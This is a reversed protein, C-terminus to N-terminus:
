KIHISGNDLDIKMTYTTANGGTNYIVGAKIVSANLGATSIHGATITGTTISGGDITTTGPSLYNSFETKGNFFIDYGVGNWDIMFAPIIEGTSTNYMTGYPLGNAAIYALEAPDDIDEIARGVTFTDASIAFVSGATGPTTTDSDVGSVTFGSILEGSKVTLGYWAAATADNYFTGFQETITALDQTNQLVNTTLNDTIYNKADGSIADARAAAELITNTYGGVLTSYNYPVPGTYGSPYSIPYSVLANSNLKDVLENLFRKLITIDELNSPVEIFKDAM